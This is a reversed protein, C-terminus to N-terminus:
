KSEWILNWGAVSQYKDADMLQMSQYSYGVAQESANLEETLYSSNIIFNQIDFGDKDTLKVTFSLPLVRQKGKAVTLNLMYLVKNDVLKTKLKANSIGIGPCEGKDDYQRALTINTNPISHMGKNFGFVSATTILIVFALLLKQKRTRTSFTSSM